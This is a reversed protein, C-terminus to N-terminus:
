FNLTEGKQAFIKKRRFPLLRQRWFSLFFREFVYLLDDFEHIVYEILLENERVLGDTDVQHLAVLM